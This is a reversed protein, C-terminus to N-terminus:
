LMYWVRVGHIVFRLDREEHTLSDEQLTWIPKLQGTLELVDAETDGAKEWGRM